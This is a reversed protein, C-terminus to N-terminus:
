LFWFQLLLWFCFLMAGRIKSIMADDKEEQVALRNLSEDLTGSMEGAAVLSLYLDSFVDPHTKMADSLSKGGEVQASLDEIVGKMAKVQTQDAVTRLSSSLPLGAGILTAFQRTFVVRDKSRVRNQLKTIISDKDEETISEPFFGQEVLLKGAVRENEAQIAGKVVKGTEKDKARYNFRKM